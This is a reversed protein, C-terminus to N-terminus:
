ANIFLLAVECEAASAVISKIISCEEHILTQYLKETNHPCEDVLYYYGETKSRRGKVSLYSRDSHIKLIMDSKRYTKRANPNTFLFDM